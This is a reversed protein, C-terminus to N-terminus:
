FRGVFGIGLPGANIDWAIKNKNQQKLNYKKDEEYKEKRKMFKDIGEVIAISMIASLTVDSFWHAGELLRSVPVVSGVALIGGKVWPNEFQKSLAYSTTISLVTHGSPFSRFNADRGYPKFFHKGLGAGPRARGTASKSIQQIAGTASAATIMLVGTRRLKENNILLGTVYVAGTIGYNIQPSGFYWGFKKLVNPVNERNRIFARSIDEDALYIMGVTAVTAGLRIYDKKEWSLPRTFANGFGGAMTVLDYKFHGWIDNKRNRNKTFSYQPDTEDLHLLSISDKDAILSDSANNVILSDQQAFLTFSILIAFVTLAKRRKM